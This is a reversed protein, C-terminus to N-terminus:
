WASIKEVDTRLNHSLLIRGAEIRVGGSPEEGIIDEAPDVFPSELRPFARDIKCLVDGIRKRRLLQHQM